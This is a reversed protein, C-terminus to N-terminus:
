AVIPNPVKSPGVARLKDGHGVVRKTARLRSLIPNVETGPLKTVRQVSATDKAGNKVALFVREVKSIGGRRVPKSGAARLREGAKRQAAKRAGSAKRPVRKARAGGAKKTTKVQKVLVRGLRKGWVSTAAQVRALADNSDKM